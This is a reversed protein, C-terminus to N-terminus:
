LLKEESEVNLIRISKITHIGYENYPIHDMFLDYGELYGYLDFTSKEGLDCRHCEGYPFNHYHTRNGRSGIANYPEFNKIAEIVPLIEAIEADSIKRLTSVYDGDNTDAEIHIYKM